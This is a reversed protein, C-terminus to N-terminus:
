RAPWLLFQLGFLILLGEILRLFARESLREVLRRGAWAGSIMILGIFIGVLVTPATLLEYRRFVIGRAIHMGVACLAETALYAGKRLGHGLFFPTSIPGVSAVLSSLFGIGAGVIPFHGLRIRINRATLWRRLLVSGLMFAGLIRSIGESEVRTYLIAGVIGTPIAGSLFAIVVRPEVEDRSFWVRSLNGLFMAVTLVPVAAKVGMTWAIVPLMIVGAGFGAVGGITSGIVAGLGLALWGLADPM